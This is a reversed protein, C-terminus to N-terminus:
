FRPNHFFLISICQLLTIDLLPFIRDICERTFAWAAGPAGCWGYRIKTPDEGSPKKNKHHLEQRWGEMFSLTHGHMAQHHSNLQAVHSFMQIVCFEHLLRKTEEVWDPRVLMVDADIMAVYKWRKFRENLFEIGINLLNEKIWLECESNVHVIHHHRNVKHTIEPESHRLTAEVVILEVGDHLMRKEFEKYLRYRSKYKQPNFYTTIVYLPQKRRCLPLSLPM